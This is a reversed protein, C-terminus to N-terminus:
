SPAVAAQSEGPFDRLLELLRVAAGTPGYESVFFFHSGAVEADARIAPVM